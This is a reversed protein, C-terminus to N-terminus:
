ISRIEKIGVQKLRQIANTKDVDNKFSSDRLIVTTKCDKEIELINKYEECILDIIDLTIEKDLNVLLTGGGISYFYKNEIIPINLDLGYKLLIEYLVDLSTRESKINDVSDFLSQKLNETEVDWEKINSTDLKFVKFGTDLKERNELPLTEDSKIKEGARRIREKGIECINKYGAKFAESNEDCPEPLQVMIHKRNGGDEANLQMIAHATTASGSFFDLIIDNYNTGQTILKQILNIGKSYDFCQTGLLIRLKKTAIANIEVELITSIPKKTSKVEEQFRKYTPTGVGTKPFIIKGESINKNMREKEYAWVRNPNAQYTINTTPDTIPYYLNPRESATKNCTLNDSMWPGRFDNDPNKYNKFDKKIGNLKSDSKKFYVLIHEHDISIMNQSDNSGTRKKWIFNGACNGEGFIEDCIKKLNCVENDDISIFIVGDDTLLNRVLKLRPYMMNLWDSHYRGSTDSNTSLKQGEEGVQGTIELYNKLNDKFNDPYVFDKGTNYPPDIYIMKVKNHYSKQLLKLVELNDGEIYLNDTNEWDKSEGKSPLFTGTSPEQAIKRANAKGHWNFSYRENEKEVEEGLISKLAEFDIKNEAFIEPFISKLKEINDQILNMSTGKLKQM